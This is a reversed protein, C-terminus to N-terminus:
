AIAESVEGAQRCDPESAIVNILKEKEAHVFAQEVFGLFAKRHDAKRILIFV